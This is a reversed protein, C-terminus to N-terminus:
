CKNKFEESNLGECDFNTNNKTIKKLRYFMPIVGCIRDALVVKYIEVRNEMVCFWCSKSSFENTTTKVTEQFQLNLLDFVFVHSNQNFFYALHGVIVVRLIIEVRRPLKWKTSVYGSWKEDVGVCITWLDVWDFSGCNFLAASSLIVFQPNGSDAITFAGYPELIYQILPLKIMAKMFPNLLLFSSNTDPDVIQKLLYRKKIHKMKVLLLWMKKSYLVITNRFDPLDINYKEGTSINIFDRKSQSIDETMMIWLPSESRSHHHNITYSLSIHHWNKCVSTFRLNTPFDLRDKIM